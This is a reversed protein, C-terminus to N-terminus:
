LKKEEGFLKLRCTRQSIGFHKAIEKWTKCLVLRHHRIKEILDKDVPNKKRGPQGM